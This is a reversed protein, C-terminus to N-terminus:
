ESKLVKGNTNTMLAQIFQLRKWMDVSLQGNEPDPVFEEDTSAWRSRSADADEAPDGSTITRVVRGLLTPRKVVVPENSYRKIEEDEEEEEDEDEENDSDSYSTSKTYGTSRYNKNSSSHQQQQQKSTHVHFMRVCKLGVNAVQILLYILPFVIWWYLHLIQTVNNWRFTQWSLSRIWHRLIRVHISVALTDTHQKCLTAIGSLAELEKNGCAQNQQLFFAATTQAAQEVIEANKYEESCISYLTFMSVVLLVTKILMWICSSLFSSFSVFWSRKKKHKTNKKKKAFTDQYHKNGENKRYAFNSFPSSSHNNTNKSNHM